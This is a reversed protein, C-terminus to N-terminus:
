MCSYEEWINLSYKILKKVKVDDAIFDDTPFDSNFINKYDEIVNLVKKINKSKYIKLISSIYELDNYIDAYVSLSSDNLIDLWSIPIIDKDTLYVIETPYTFDDYIDDNFEQDEPLINIDFVKDDFIDKMYKIFEINTKYDKNFGLYLKKNNVITYVYYM